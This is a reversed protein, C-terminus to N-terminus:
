SLRTEAGLQKRASREIRSLLDDRQALLLFPAELGCAQLGM